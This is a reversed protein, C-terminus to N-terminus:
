YIISRRYFAMFRPVIVWFVMESGDRLWRRWGVGTSVTLSSWMASTHREDCMWSAFVAVPDHGWDGYSVVDIWILGRLKRNWGSRAGNIGIQVRKFVIACRWGRVRNHFVINRWMFFLIGIPFTELYPIKTVYSHSVSTLYIKYNHCVYLGGYNIINQLVFYLWILLFFYPWFARSNQHYKEQLHPAIIHSIKAKRIWQIILIFTYQYLKFFIISWVYSKVIHYQQM